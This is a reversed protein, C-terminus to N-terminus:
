QELLVQQMRRPMPPVARQDTQALQEDVVRVRQAARVRGVGDRGVLGVGGKQVVENASQQANEDEIAEGIKDAFGDHGRDAFGCGHCDRGGGLCERFVGHKKQDALHDRGHEIWLKVVVPFNAVSGKEGNTINERDPLVHGPCQKRHRKRKQRSCKGVVIVFNPRGGGCGQKGDDGREGLNHPGLSDISEDFLEPRACQVQIVQASGGRSHKLEQGLQNLEIRSVM